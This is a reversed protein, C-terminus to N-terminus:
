LMCPFEQTIKEIHVNLESEGIETFDSKSLGFQSMRRYITSKSVFLMASAERITFGQGLLNQLVSKPISFSLAGRCTPIKKM